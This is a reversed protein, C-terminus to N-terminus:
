HENLIMLVGASLIAVALTLMILSDQILGGLYWFIAIAGFIVSASLVVAIGICVMIERAKM